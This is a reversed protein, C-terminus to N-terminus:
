PIDLGEFYSTNPFPQVWRIGSAHGNEDLTPNLDTDFDMVAQRMHYDPDYLFRDTRSVLTQTKSVVSAGLYLLTGPGFGDWWVANRTGVYSYLNPLSPPTTDFTKVMEVQRRFASTPTGASDIKTGGIDTATPYSANYPYYAGVRWVDVFEGTVESSTSVVNVEGFDPLPDYEYTYAIRYGENRDTMRQVDRKKVKLDIMTPHEENMQPLNGDLVIMNIDLLLDADYEGPLYAIFTRSCVEQEFGNADVQTARSEEPLEAITYTM